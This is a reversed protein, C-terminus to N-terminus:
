GCGSRACGPPCGSWSGESSATGQWAASPASRLSCRRARARARPPLSARMFMIPCARHPRGAFDSPLPPPPTHVPMHCAHSRGLPRCRLLPAEPQSGSPEHAPGLGPCSVKYRSVTDTKPRHRFLLCESHFRGSTPASAGNEDLACPRLPSMSRFVCMGGGHKHLHVEITTNM